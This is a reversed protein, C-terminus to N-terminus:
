DKFMKFAEDFGIEGRRLQSQVRLIDDPRPLGSVQVTAQIARRVLLRNFEQIVHERLVAMAWYFSLRRHLLYYETTHTLNTERRTWGWRRTHRLVWAFEYRSYETFSFERPLKMQELDKRFFEPGLGLDKSLLKLLKRFRAAGGLAGPVSVRWVDRYPLLVFKPQVRWFRIPAIQLYFGPLRIVSAPSFPFLVSKTEDTADEIVEYLAAGDHAVYQAIATLADCITENDGHHEYHSISSALLFVKHQDDESGTVRVEFGKPWRRSGGVPLFSLGIDEAFMHLTLAPSYERGNSVHM